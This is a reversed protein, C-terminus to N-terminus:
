IARIIEMPDARTARVAPIWCAALSVAVLMAEAVVLSVADTRPISELWPELFKAAWMAIWAGIATGALVMMAGDRFVLALLMNRQAGLAMRLAYERMRRSVAYSLVGYLGVATLLLSLAGLAGFVRVLFARGRMADDFTARMSRMEFGRGYVAQGVARAIGPRASSDGSIRIALTRLREPSTTVVYVRPEPDIGSTVNVARAVGVVRVWPSPADPAGLKVMRGIPSKTGWLKDAATRDIIAVPATGMEDGKEFDRGALVPIGLTRFYTSSVTLYSLSIAFTPEPGEVDSTIGASGPMRSVFTAADVVGPVSRVKDLLGDWAEPVAADEPLMRKNFTKMGTLVRGADYGFDFQSARGVARFTLGAWMLLTLCIAVEAIILASFRYKGRGTTGAGDKLPESLSIDSARVAPALGFLIASVATALIAFAYVRWSLHPALRGFVPILGPIKARVLAIGWFMLFTGMAGGALALVASEALVDRVLAKRTAGLALRVAFERKRSIGRALMLNALNVCAILLIALAAGALAKQSDTLAEPPPALPYLQFSFPQKGEGYTETLRRAVIALEARAADVSVGSKLRVHLGGSGVENGGSGPLRLWVRTQEGPVNMGFPLIGIVDYARDGITLRLGSELPRGLFASQWLEYSIVANAEEPGSPGPAFLRGAFPTVGVVSFFDAAVRSGWIEGEWSATRGPSIFGSETTIDFSRTGERVARNKEPWGVTGSFGSGWPLIRFLREPQPYPVYPHKVSDILSYTTTTLAIGLGLTITAIAVFGPSKRLSRLAYRISM